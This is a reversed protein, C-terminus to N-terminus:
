LLSDNISHPRIRISMPNKFDEFLSILFILSDLYFQLQKQVSVYNCGDTVDMSLCEKRLIPNLLNSISCDLPNCSGVIELTVVFIVPIEFSLYSGHILLSYLLSLLYQFHEFSSLEQNCGM